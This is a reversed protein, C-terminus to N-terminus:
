PVRLFRGHITNFSDNDSGGGSGTFNLTFSPDNQSLWGPPFAVFFVNFKWDLDSGERHEGFRNEPTWRAVTTWPGWPEPADYIGIFGAHSRTHETCLLYRNLGPHFVASMCWGVGAADEFVPQKDELHGWRPQGDNMGSFWQYSERGEFLSQKHVRALYIVGPKHISLGFESQTVDTTQPRIFYSYVFDDRSESHDQGSNLFTPIILNDERWWRWPAKEWRAGHDSSRALEIYRYHNREGGTDPTDPVIWSYLVGDVCITGWSKGDFEAPHEANVGGWVNYGKWDHGNGEIRAFGMGVRGQSNTGGFGGGDGWWGYHHGDDAWTLQFNDSGPAARQHTSWDLELGAIVTGPPYASSVSENARSLASVMSLAFLIAIVVRTHRM